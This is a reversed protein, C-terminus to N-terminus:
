PPSINPDTPAANGTVKAIEAALATVNSTDEFLGGGAASADNGYVAVGTISGTAGSFYIGGGNKAINGSFSGGSFQFDLPVAPTHIFLGGGNGTAFNDTVVANKIIASTSGNIYIGGGDVFSHNGIVKTGTISVTGEDIASIGGGGFAFNDSFVGGNVALNVKNVGTGRTSIGGGDAGAHNDSFTSGSITLAIGGTAFLGGGYYDSRNETFHSGTITIPQLTGSGNGEIFLGAGGQYAANNGTTKNGTVTSNSITLSAFHTGHGEIGGGDFVATNYSITSNSVVASGAYVYLGGGGANAHTGVSTNGTIKTNSITTKASPATAYNTVFLGGGHDAKNGSFVCGSITMGKGSAGLV